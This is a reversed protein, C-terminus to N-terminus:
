PSIRRLQSLAIAKQAVAEVGIETMCRHAYHLCTHVGCWPPNGSQQSQRCGLGEVYFYPHQDQPYPHWETPDEPGFLTLTPTGVAAALHKPGSDNTVLLNLEGLLAALERLPLGEFVQAPPALPTRLFQRHLASERNTGFLLVTGGHAEQWLHALQAFREPSWAKAPRSAGLHLGLLPEPLGQLRCHAAEQEARNLVLRPPLAPCDAGPVTTQVLRLNRELISGGRNVGAVAQHSLFHYPDPGHHAILCRRAGVGRTMWASATGAHFNLALDFKQARLHPLLRLYHRFSSLRHIQAGFPLCHLGVVGTLNELLSCYHAPVLAQIQASPHLAVLSRIAASLLVTDGLARLQVM